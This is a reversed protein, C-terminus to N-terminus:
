HKRLNKNLRKKGNKSAKKNNTNSLKKIIEDTEEIVSTLQTTFKKLHQLNNYGNVLDEAFQKDQTTLILNHTQRIEGRHVEYETPRNRKLLVLKDM